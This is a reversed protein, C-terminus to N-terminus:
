QVQQTRNILQWVWRANNLVQQQFIFSFKALQELLDAAEDETVDRVDVGVCRAIFHPIYSPDCVRVQIDTLETNLEGRLMLVERRSGSYVAGELFFGIPELDIPYDTDLRVKFRYDSGRMRLFLDLWMAPWTFEHLVAIDGALAKFGAALTNTLTKVTAVPPEAGGLMAQVLPTISERIRDRELKLQIVGDPLTILFEAVPIDQRLELSNPHFAVNAPTNGLRIQQSFKCTTKPHIFVLQSGTVQYTRGHVQQM